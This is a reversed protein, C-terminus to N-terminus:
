PSLDGLYLLAALALLSSIGQHFTTDIFYRLIQPNLLQLGISSLLLVVMLLTCRWQPRLYRALLRLYYAFPRIHM